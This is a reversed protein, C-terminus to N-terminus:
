ENEFQLGSVLMGKSKDHLSNLYNVWQEAVIRVDLKEKIKLANKGLQNSLEKNDILICMAKSLEDVNNVPVLLGNKGTEILDAAGGTPCNTSIVPIGMAMAEIVVNPMGEYDSSLVFMAAGRMCELLQKSRGPFYYSGQPLLSEAHAGLEERLEGEGYIMLVYDSHREHFKAFANILLPFNKQKELRGAGIIKKRRDGEWPQPIRELDLPNPLVIGKKQIRASFFLAAEKTQFVFGTAFPYFLKRVFRTEKKRPMIWPNNRESVVVPIHTGLLTPIIYAGIDEPLALVIDPKIHILYRRIEIYKLLKDIHSNKSKKKITYIKVQSPLDYFMEDDDLTIITCKIKKHTMYKVLQAIVREAGGARMNRTIIAIHNM